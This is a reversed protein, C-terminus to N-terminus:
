TTTAAEARGTRPAERQTTELIWDRFAAVRQLKAKETTSVVYYSSLIPKVWQPFPAVLRGAQLHDHVLMSRGLVMGVGAVAARLILLPDSFRPGTAVDSAAM